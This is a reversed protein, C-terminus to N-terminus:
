PAGLLRYATELWTLCVRLGAATADDDVEQILRGTEAYDSKNTTVFVVPKAGGGQRVRRALELYEEFICCDKYSQKGPRAPVRRVRIRKDARNQASRNANLPIAAGLMEDAVQELRGRVGDYDVPGFTAQGIAVAAADLSELKGALDRLEREITSRADALNDDFELQLFSARVLVCQPPDTRLAEAVRWVAEMNKKDLRASGRIVDLLSCTDLLLCPLDASLVTAAVDSITPM